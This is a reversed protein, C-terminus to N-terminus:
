DAMRKAVQMVGEDCSVKIMTGGIRAFCLGTKPDYFYEARESTTARGHGKEYEQWKKATGEPWRGNKLYYGKASKYRMHQFRPIAVAALIGVIAVVIMLEILTLGRQDSAKRM